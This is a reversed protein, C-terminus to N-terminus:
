NGCMGTCDATFLEGQNTKRSAEFDVKDLPICSRHLFPVGRLATAQRYAEQYEREFVVAKEFEVPMEFKLEVWYADDHYPCYRCASRPPIPYGRNKLWAVCGARSLDLEILPWRNTIWVDRSQKMRRAEDSSIGIWQQISLWGNGKKLVRLQRRIIEIKFDQTCQRSMLGIKGDPALVFCPINHKLYFRGSLKSPGRVRLAEKSLCGKTVTYVTFPLETKLWDLYQYVGDPEDQTDAFIACHPMPTIYGQAAMLALTSSQVGAGLSLIHPISM